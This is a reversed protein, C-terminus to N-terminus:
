KETLEHKINGGIQYNRSDLLDQQDNRLESYTAFLGMSGRSLTKDIKATFNRQETSGQLPDTNYNSM